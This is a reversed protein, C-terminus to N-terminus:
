DIKDALLLCGCVKLIFVLIFAHALLVASKLDVEFITATFHFSLLSISRWFLKQFRYFTWQQSSHYAEFSSHELEVAQFCLFNCCSYPIQQLKQVMVDTGLSNLHPLISPPPRNKEYKTDTTVWFEHMKIFLVSFLIVNYLKKLFEETVGNFFYPMGLTELFICMQENSLCHIIHRHQVNFEIYKLHFSICLTSRSFTMEYWVFTISSIMRFTELLVTNLLAANSWKM